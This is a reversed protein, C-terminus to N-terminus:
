GRNTERNSLSRESKSSNISSKHRKRIGERTYDNVLTKISSQKSYKAYSSSDCQKNSEHGESNSSEPGGLMNLHKVLISKVHQSSDVPQKDAVELTLYVQLVSAKGNESTMLSPSVRVSDPSKVSDVKSQADDSFIQELENEHIVHVTSYSRKV